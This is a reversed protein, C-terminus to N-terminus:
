NLALTIGARVQEDPRRNVWAHRFGLDLDLHDDVKWIAGL